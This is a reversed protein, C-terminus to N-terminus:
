REVNSAGEALRARLIRRARSLISKSTGAAMGLQEAIQEHTFGEVDHLVVVIRQQDPLADLARELDVAAAPSEVRHDLIADDLEVDRLGRRALWAYATRAGIARLWSAFVADGRYRHMGRCAGLWTDQVVDDVDSTLAGLLRRVTMRLRPTHREYLTAFAREDGDLFRRILM